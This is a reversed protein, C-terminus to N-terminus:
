LDICRVRSSYTGIHFSSHKLFTKKKIYVIVFLIFFAFTYVSIHKGYHYMEKLIKFSVFAVYIVIVSQDNMWENM